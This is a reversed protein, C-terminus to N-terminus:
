RRRRGVAALTLVLTAATTPEPLTAISLLSVNVTGHTGAGPYLTLGALAASSTNNASASYILSGDGFVRFEFATGIRAIEFDYITGNVLDVNSVTLPVSNANNLRLTARAFGNSAGTGSSNGLTLLIINDQLNIPETDDLPTATLALGFNSFNNEANLRISARVTTGDTITTAKNFVHVNGQTFDVEQNVADYVITTASKMPGGGRWAPGELDPTDSPGGAFPDSAFDENMFYGGHAAPAACALVVALVVLANPAIPNM